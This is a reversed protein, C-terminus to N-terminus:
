PQVDQHVVGPSRYILVLQIILWAVIVNKQMPLQLETDTMLVSIGSMRQTGPQLLQWEDRSEHSIVQTM